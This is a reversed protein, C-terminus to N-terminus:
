HYCGVYVAQSTEEPQVILQGDELSVNLSREETSFEQEAVTNGFDDQVIIKM